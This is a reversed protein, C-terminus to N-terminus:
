LKKGYHKKIANSLLIYLQRHEDKQILDLHAHMTEQDGRRAPGTQAMEPHILGVKRVTEQMLPHLLLPDLDHAECIETGITYMYNTFNNVFVACLHLIRREPSAVKRVTGSLKSAMSLLLAEDELHKAEVCIPVGELDPLMGQTFTQLPYCVGIRDLPNLASMPTAGSTHVVLGAVAGMKQAVAAIAADSVALIYLDAKALDSYATTVPVQKEFLALKDYSRGVVQKIEIDRNKRLANFLVHAVNGTGIIVVSIM